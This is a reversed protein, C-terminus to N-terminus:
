KTTNHVKLANIKNELEILKKRTNNYKPFSNNLIIMKKERTKKDYRSFVGIRVDHLIDDIIKKQKELKSRQDEYLKKLEEQSEIKVIQITKAM